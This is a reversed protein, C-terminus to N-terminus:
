QICWVGSILVCKFCQLPRPRLRKFLIARRQLLCFYLYCCKAGACFNFFCVVKHHTDVIEKDLSQSANRWCRRSLYWPCAVYDDRHFGTRAIHTHQRMELSRFIEASYCINVYIIQKDDARSAIPKPDRNLLQPVQVELRNLEYASTCSWSCCKTYLLQNCGYWSCFTFSLRRNTPGVANRSKPELAIIM